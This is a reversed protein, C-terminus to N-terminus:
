RPARRARGSPGQSCHAGYLYGRLASIYIPIIQMQTQDKSRHSSSSRPVPGHVDAKAIRDGLALDDLRRFRPARVACSRAVAQADAQAAAAARGARLVEQDFRDGAEGAPGAPERRRQVSFAPHFAIGLDDLVQVLHQRVLERRDVLIEHVGLHEGVPTEGGQRPSRAAEISSIFCASLRTSRMRNRSPSGFRCFRCLSNTPSSTM